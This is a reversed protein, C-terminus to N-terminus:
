EKAELGAQAMVEAAFDDQKKEIGDGVEFRIFNAVEANHQKLMQGVKTNPDKVFPQGLLSVEDLFKTIRGTIMKEIIDAPKGSAQAQASFIAKEKEVVEAPVQDANVVLPKSAAIHMAIDKAMAADGQALDVLVGIRQSHVYANIVNASQVRVLRRLQLNEGLKTVLNQRVTEVTESGGAITSTNLSEIDKIEQQLATNAVQNAFHLFSEDRAVFDTESNIEVMVAQKGDESVQIIVVGEAAIRGSKKDAKAQGAKRMNEIALDIDGDTETLAKKCEMFGAGTRDRLEKVQAASISM